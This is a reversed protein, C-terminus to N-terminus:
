CGKSSLNSRLLESSTVEFCDDIRAKSQDASRACHLTRYMDMETLHDVEKPDRGDLYASSLRCTGDAHLYVRYGLQATNQGCEGWTVIDVFVKYSGRIQLDPDTRCRYCAHDLIAPIDGPVLKHKRNIIHCPTWQVKGLGAGM